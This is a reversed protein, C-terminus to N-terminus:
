RQAALGALFGRQYGGMWTDEGIAPIPCIPAIPSICSFKKYCYGAKYGAKWGDCFGSAMVAMAALVIVLLMKRIM